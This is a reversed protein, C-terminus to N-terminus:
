PRNSPYTFGSRNRYKPKLSRNVNTGLSCEGNRPNELSPINKENDNYQATIAPPWILFYGIACSTKPIGITGLITHDAMFHVTPPIIRLVSDSDPKFKLRIIGAANNTTKNITGKEILEKICKTEALFCNLESIM